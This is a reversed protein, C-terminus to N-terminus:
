TKTRFFIQQQHLGSKSHSADGQRKMPPKGVVFRHRLGHDQHKLQEIKGTLKISFDSSGSDLFDVFREISDNAISYRVFDLDFDTTARRTDNSIHQMLVGGKISVNRALDSKGILDLMADQAARAQAQEYSLGDDIYSDRVDALSNM